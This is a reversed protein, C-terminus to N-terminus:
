KLADDLRPSAGGFDEGRVSGVPHIDHLTRVGDPVPEAEQRLVEADVRVQARELEQLVERRELAHAVRRADAVHQAGSIPL